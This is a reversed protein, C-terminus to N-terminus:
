RSIASSAPTGVIPQRRAPPPRAPATKADFTASPAASAAARRGSMTTKSPLPAAIGGDRDVAAHEDDASAV